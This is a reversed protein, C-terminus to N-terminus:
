RWSIRQAALVNAPHWFAARFRRDIGFVQFYNCSNCTTLQTTVRSPGQGLVASSPQSAAVDELAHSQTRIAEYDDTTFSSFQGAGAFWGEYQPYVQVFTTPSKRTPADLFM